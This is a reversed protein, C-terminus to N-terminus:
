RRLIAFNGPRWLCPRWRFIASSISIPIDPITPSLWISAAEMHLIQSATESRGSLELIRDPLPKSAETDGDATAMYFLEERSNQVVIGGNEELRVNEVLRKFLTQKLDIKVLGLTRNTNPERILRAVSFYSQNGDLYYSPRHPPLALGRESRGRWPVLTAAWTRIHAIASPALSSFTYGSGAFIQISDIEPRDFTMSAIYLRMKSREEVTPRQHLSDEERYKRLISLVGSDYLPMLTLRQMEM